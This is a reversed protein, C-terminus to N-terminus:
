ELHTIELVLMSERHNLDLPRNFEDRFSVDINTMRAIPAPSSEYLSHDTERNLLIYNSQGPTLYFIHFCDPRGSGLEMRSLNRGDSELHLYIRNLFFVNIQQLM